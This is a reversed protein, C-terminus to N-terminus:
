GRQGTNILTDGHTIYRRRVHRRSHGRRADQIARRFASDDASADRPKTPRTKARGARRRVQAAQNKCSTSCYMKPRGVDHKDRSPLVFDPNPCRDNHCRVEDTATLMWYMQLWLAGLLNDFAFGREFRGDRRYMMPRCYESVYAQTIDACVALGWETWFRPSGEDGSEPRYIEYVDMREIVERNRIEEPPGHEAPWKRESQANPDKAAKYLALVDAAIRAERAFADVSDHERSTSRVTLDGREPLLIVTTPRLPPEYELGLV